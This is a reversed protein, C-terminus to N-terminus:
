VDDHPFIAQNATKEVISVLRPVVRLVEDGADSLNEVVDNLVNDLKEEFEEDDDDSLVTECNDLIIDQLDGNAAAAKIKKKIDLYKKEANKIQFEEEKLQQVLKRAEAAKKAEEQAEKNMLAAEIRAYERRPAKAKKTLVQAVKKTRTAQKVKKEAIKNAEKFKKQAMVKDEKAKKLLRRAEAVKRTLSEAATKAEIKAQGAEAEAQKQRGVAADRAAEHQKVKAGPAQLTLDRVQKAKEGAAAKNAHAAVLKKQKKRAIEAEEKTEKAEKLEKMEAQAAEAQLSQSPGESVGWCSFLNGFLLDTDTDTDNKTETSPANSKKFIAM